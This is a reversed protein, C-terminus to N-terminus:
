ASYVRLATEFEAFLRILYTGELRESAHSVDRLRIDRKLIKPDLAAAALLEDTALRTAAYEREVDKISQLSEFRKAPM